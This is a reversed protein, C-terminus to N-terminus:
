YSKWVLEGLRSDNLKKEKGSYFTWFLSRDANIRVVCLSAPAHDEAFLSIYRWRFRKDEYGVAWVELPNELTPILRNLYILRSLDKEKIIHSLLDRSFWVDDVPTHILRNPQERFGFVDDILTAAAEMSHPRDLLDVAPSANTATLTKLDPLGYDRWNKQGAKIGLCGNHEIAFESFEVDVCDPLHGRMDWLQQRADAPSHAWGPDIGRPVRRVEGTYPDIWDKSGYQADLQEGTSIGREQAQAESMSQVACRCRWGNPPFHTQWWPDDHRCITGHWARHLPRTRGDNVAVYRWYPRAKLVAPNTLRDYRGKAYASQMNAHYITDLRHPNFTTTKKEGTRPDVIDKTGWWGKSKLLPALENKFRDVSWGDALAKDVMGRIDALVDMQTVRSVTFAKAHAEQWLDTWNYSIHFGKSRLFEIAQEPPLSFAATLHSPNM